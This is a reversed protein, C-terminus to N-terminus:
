LQCTLDSLTGASPNEGEAHTLGLSVLRDRADQLLKRAGSLGLDLQGEQDAFTRLIPDERLAQM